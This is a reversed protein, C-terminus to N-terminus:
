EDGQEGSRAMKWMLLEIKSLSIFTLAWLAYHAHPTFRGTILDGILMIINFACGVIGMIIIAHGIM